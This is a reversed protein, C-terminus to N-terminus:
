DYGEVLGSMKRCLMDESMEFCSLSSNKLLHASANDQHYLVSSYKKNVTTEPYGCFTERKEPVNVRHTEFTVTFENSGLVECLDLYSTYNCLALSTVLPSIFKSFHRAISKDSQQLDWNIDESGLVRIVHSKRSPTKVFSKCSM